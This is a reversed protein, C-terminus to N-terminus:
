SPVPQRDPEISSQNFRSSSLTSLYSVSRNTPQSAPQSTAQNAPQGAPRSVSQSTRVPESLNQITRFPQIAPQSAPHSVSASQNVPSVQQIVMVSASQEQGLRVSQDISTSGARDNARNTPFLFVDFSRRHSAPFVFVYLLIAQTIDFVSFTDFLRKHTTSFCLIYRLIAQTGDFFLSNLSSDGKRQRFVSSTELPPGRQAM